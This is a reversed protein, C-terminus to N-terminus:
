GGYLTTSCLGGVLPSHHSLDDGHIVVMYIGMRYLGFAYVVEMSIKALWARKSGRSSWMVMYVMKTRAQRVCVWLMWVRGHKDM